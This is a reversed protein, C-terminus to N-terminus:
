APEAARASVLVVPRGAARVLGASVSGFLGGRLPGRGRTGTVALWAREDRAARALAEAADGASSTRTAITIM